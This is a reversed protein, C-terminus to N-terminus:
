SVIAGLPTLRRRSVSRRRAGHAGYPPDYPAIQHRGASRWHAQTRWLPSGRHGKVRLRGWRTGDWGTAGDIWQPQRAEHRTMGPRDFAPQRALIPGLARVPLPEDIQADLDDRRAATTRRAPTAPSCAQDAPWASRRQNPWRPV